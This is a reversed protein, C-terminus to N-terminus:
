LIEGSKKSYRVLKGNKDLKRGVRSAVGKSDLVMLNSIHIPAESKLIGGQPNRSNPKAHKSVINLGEVIAKNNRYDVSIVKGSKGKETGSIVKVQYNKKLHLKLM